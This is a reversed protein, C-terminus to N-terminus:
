LHIRPRRRLCIEHRDLEALAGREKVDSQLLQGRALALHDLQMPKLLAWVRFYGFNYASRLTSHTNACM